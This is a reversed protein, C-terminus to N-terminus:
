VDWEKPRVRNWEKRIDKILLSSGCWPCKVPFGDIPDVDGLKATTFHKARIVDNGKLFPFVDDDYRLATIECLGCRISGM